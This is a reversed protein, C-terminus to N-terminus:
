VAPLRPALSTYLKCRRPGCLCGYMGHLWWACEWPLTICSPPCSYIKSQSFAKLVKKAHGQIAFCIEQRLACMLKVKWPVLVLNKPQPSECDKLITIPECSESVSFNVKTNECSHVAWNTQTITGKTVPILVSTSKTQILSKAGLLNATFFFNYVAIFHFQELSDADIALLCLLRGFM